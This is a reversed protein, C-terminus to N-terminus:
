KVLSSVNGRQKMMNLLNQYSTYIHEIKHEKLFEIDSKTLAEYVGIKKMILNYRTVDEALLCMYKDRQQIPLQQQAQLNQHKLQEQIQKQRFKYLIKRM